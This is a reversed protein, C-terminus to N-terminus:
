NEVIELAGNKLYYIEMIKSYLNFLDEPVKDPSLYYGVPKYEMNQNIYVISNQEVDEEFLSLILYLHLYKWTLDHKSDFILKTYKRIDKVVFSSNDYINKIEDLTYISKEGFLYDGINDDNFIRELLSLYNKTLPLYVEKTIMFRSFDNRDINIQSLYNKFMIENDIKYTYYFVQYYMIMVTVCGVYFLKPDTLIGDPIPRLHTINEIKLNEKKCWKYNWFRYDIYFEKGRKKPADKGITLEMLLEPTYDEIKLIHPKKGNIGSAVISNAEEDPLHYREGKLKERLLKSYTHISM